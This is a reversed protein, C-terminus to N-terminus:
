HDVSCPEGESHFVNMWGRILLGERASQRDPSISRDILFIAIKEAM